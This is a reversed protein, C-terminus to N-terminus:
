MDFNSWFIIHTPKIDTPWNLQIRNRAPASISNGHAPSECDTTFSLCFAIENIFDIEQENPNSHDVQMVRPKTQQYNEGSDLSTWGFFSLFRMALLVFCMIISVATVALGNTLCYTSRYNFAYVHCDKEDPGIRIIIFLFYEFAVVIVTHARFMVYVCKLHRSPEPSWKNM